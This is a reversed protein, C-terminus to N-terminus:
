SPPTVETAPDGDVGATLMPVLGDLTFPISLVSGFVLAGRLVQHEGSPGLFIVRGEQAVDLQQFLPNDELAAREGTWLLVDTDLLALQEPSISGFFEDGAIEALEVPLEFGLSTLFRQREHQPGSFGVEGEGLESAIAATAGAFEPHADRGVAFLEETEAVLELAREEQGLARGIVRTQEQWPVGFDVYEDSQSVTPAIAALTDYEDETFGASVGVILDPQLAAIAEFDLEGFPMELLEPDAEGFEDQAWPWISNPQDGFWYRVAVPTIGLALIPDQDRFGLSVVRQPEEPIRTNGYKHEITVPFAADTSPQTTTSEAPPTAVEAPESRDEGENGRDAAGCAALALVLIAPWAARQLNRLYM